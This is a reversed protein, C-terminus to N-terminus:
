RLTGWVRFKVTAETDSLNTVKINEIINQSPYLNFLNEETLGYNQDDIFNLTINNSTQDIFNITITVNVEESASLGEITINADFSNISLPSRQITVPTNYTLNKEEKFVSTVSYIWRYEPNKIPNDFDGLFITGDGILPAVTSDAGLYIGYITGGGFSEFIVNSLLTDNMAGELHLGTQTQNQKAHMWFRVNTWQGNNVEADKEVMIGVSNDGYLNFSCRDLVTSEYSGTANIGTPTKFTISTSCNNWQTNELKTYESWDHTNSIEIASECNEFIMNEATARFSNELRFTGNSLVFNRIQNNSNNVYSDSVFSISYGNLNLIAGLGDLIINSKNEITIDSNLDYSGPSMMVVRGNELAYQLAESFETKEEERGTVGSKVYYITTASTVNYRSSLLFDYEEPLVSQLQEELEDVKNTLETDTSELEDVKNTLETDTSELLSLDQATDEKVGLTFTYNFLGVLLAITIFIGFIISVIKNM